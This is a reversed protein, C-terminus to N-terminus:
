LAQVFKKWNQHRKKINNYQNTEERQNTEESKKWKKGHGTLIQVAHSVKVRVGISMKSTKSDCTLDGAMDQLLGNVNDYDAIPNDNSSIANTASNIDEAIQQDCNCGNNDLKNGWKKMNNKFMNMRTSINNVGDPGKFTDKIFKNHHTKEGETATKLASYYNFAATMVDLCSNGTPEATEFELMNMEDMMPAPTTPVACEYDVTMYKFVDSCPDRIEDAISSDWTCSTQGDCRLGM